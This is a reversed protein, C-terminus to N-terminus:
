LEGLNLRRAEQAARESAGARTYRILMDTRTWGAIAMLGSESGGHALWRHAATHRLKHPHFGKIGARQARRRLARGLGDYGFSTGREGLWLQTADANRHHQRLDLYAYLARTVALGIPIVRGRGGKGRRITVLGAVLDVDDTGLAILEGARIGTELMLRIIAEDRCHHLPEDPRHTPATCTTILARLEDDTLPTVLPHRQPPGKIGLFPDAHLRGVAILWAAFRRMALQRTRATGPAAGADLMEAIWTNLSTRTMPAAGRATCWTLYTRVGHTYVKITAPSKDEARLSLQWTPILATTQDATHDTLETMFLSCWGCRRGTVHGHM